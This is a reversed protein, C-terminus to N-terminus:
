PCCPMSEGISRVTSQLEEAYSAMVVRLHNQVASEELGASRLALALQRLTEGHRMANVRLLEPLDPARWAEPNVRPPRSEQGHTHAPRRRRRPTDSIREIDIYGCSRYLPLGSLTAALEAQRFGEAAAAAECTRLILRGIGRRVYSPHTYM